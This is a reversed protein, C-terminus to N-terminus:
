DLGAVERGASLSQLMQRISSELALAVERTARHTDEKYSSFHDRLNVPEGGKVQAKRPGWIRRLKFVEMELLSLVDIFREVTM